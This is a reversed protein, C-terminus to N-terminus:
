EAQRTTVSMGSTYTDEPTDVISDTEAIGELIESKEIGVIGKKIAREMNDAPMNAAKATDIATRLRPNTAPDGGGIKAAVTIERLIKTFLKARKKDQAGKRHKINAFQSHGAM